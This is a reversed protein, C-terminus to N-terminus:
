CNDRRAGTLAAENFCGSRCPSTLSARARRAGTLAAENFCPTTNASPASNASEGREESRPGTSPAPVMQRDGPQGVEGRKLLRPGTSPRAVVHGGVDVDPREASLYARGRQLWAAVTPPM